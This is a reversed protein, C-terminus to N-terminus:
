CSFQSLLEMLKDVSFPKELLTVPYKEKEQELTSQFRSLDSSMYVTRVGPNHGRILGMLEIGSKIPMQIDTIVLDPQFLLFASYGDSGDEALKVEYGENELIMQLLFALDKNDDVILIKMQKNM